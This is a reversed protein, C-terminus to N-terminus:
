GLISKLKVNNNWWDQVSITITKMFSNLHMFSITHPRTICCLRREDFWILKILPGLVLSWCPLAVGRGWGWYSGGGGGVWGCGCGGGGVGWGVCVWMVCLITITRLIKWNIRIRYERILSFRNSLPFAWSLLANCVLQCINNLGDRLCNFERTKMIVDDFLIM